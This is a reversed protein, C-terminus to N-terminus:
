TKEVDIGEKQLEKIMLDQQEEVTSKGKNDKESITISLFLEDPTAKREAKANQDIYPTNEGQAAAKIPAVAIIAIALLSAIQKLKRM